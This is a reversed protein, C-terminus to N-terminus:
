SHSGRIQHHEIHKIISKGRWTQEWNADGNESRGFSPNIEQREDFQHGNHAGCNGIPQGVLHTALGPQDFFLAPAIAERAEHFAHSQM